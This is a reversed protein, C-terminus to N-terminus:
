LICLGSHQLHQSVAGLEHVALEHFSGRVRDTVRCEQAMVLDEHQQELVVRVDVQARDIPACREHPRGHLAVERSHFEKNLMPGLKVQGVLFAQVAKVQSNDLESVRRCLEQVILM